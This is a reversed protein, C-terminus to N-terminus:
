HGSSIGHWDSLRIIKSSETADDEGSAGAVPSHSSRAALHHAASTFVAAVAPAASFQEEDYIQLTLVRFM